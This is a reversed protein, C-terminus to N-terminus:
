YLTVWVPLGARKAADTTAIRKRWSTGNRNRSEELRRGQATKGHFLSFYLYNVANRNQHTPLKRCRFASIFASRRACRRGARAAGAGVLVGPPRARTVVPRVGRRRHPVSANVSSRSLPQIHPIPLFGQLNRGETRRTKPIGKKACGALSDIPYEGSIEKRETPLHRFIAKACTQAKKEGTQRFLCRLSALVGEM